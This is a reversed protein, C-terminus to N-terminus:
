GPSPRSRIEEAREILADTWLEGVRALQEDDLDAISITKSTVGKFRLFNPIRPVELEMPVTLTDDVAM